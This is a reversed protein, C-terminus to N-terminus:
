KSNHPEDPPTSAGGSGGGPSKGMPEAHRKNNNELRKKRDQDLPELNKNTLPNAQPSSQLTMLQEAKTPLPSSRVAMIGGGGHKTKCANVAEALRAMPLHELRGTAPDNVLYNGNTDIGDIVVWHASDAAGKEGKALEKYDVLAVLKNGQEMLTSSAMAPDFEKVSQMVKLGQSALMKAMEEPTVGKQYDLNSKALERMYLKPTQTKDSYKSAGLMAVVAAGCNHSRTQRMVPTAQSWGGVKLQTDLALNVPKSSGALVVPPVAEKKQEFTDMPPTTPTSSPQAGQKPASDQRSQAQSSSFVPGANRSLIVVAM